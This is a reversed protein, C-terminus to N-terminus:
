EYRGNGQEGDTLQYDLKALLEILPRSHSHIDGILDYKM